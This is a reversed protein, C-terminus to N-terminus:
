MNGDDQALEFEDDVQDPSVATIEEFRKFDKVNFTLIHTIGHVLMAAVLRTDHVKAGKVNYRTVLSRWHSYIAPTDGKLIFAAEIEELKIEAQSISLGLGNNELPRTCVNWFEAMIQPVIVLEQKALHLSRLAAAAQKYQPHDPQQKRLLVNTDVLFM